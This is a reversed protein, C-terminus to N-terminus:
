ADEPSGTERQSIAAAVCAHVLVFVYMSDLTQSAIGRHNKRQEVMHVYFSPQTHVFSIHIDDNGGQSSGKPCSLNVKPNAM